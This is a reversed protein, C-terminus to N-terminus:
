AKGSTEDESVFTIIRIRFSLNIELTIRDRKSSNYYIMSGKLDSHLKELYLDIWNSHSIFIEFNM